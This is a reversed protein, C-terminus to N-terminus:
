GLMVFSKVATLLGELACPTAFAIRGAFRMLQVKGLMGSVLRELALQAGFLEIVLGVQSAMQGQVAAFLRVCALLASLLKDALIM